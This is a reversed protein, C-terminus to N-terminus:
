RSKIVAVEASFPIGDLVVMSLIQAQEETSLTRVPKVTSAIMAQMELSSITVTVVLSAIKITEEMCSTTASSKHPMVMSRIEMSPIQVLEESYKTM